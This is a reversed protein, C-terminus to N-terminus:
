ERKRTMTLYVLGGMLVLAAAVFSYQWTAMARGEDADPRVRRGHEGRL